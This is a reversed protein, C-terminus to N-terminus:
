QYEGAIIIILIVGVTISFVAASYFVDAIKSAARSNSRLLEATGQILCIVSCVVALIGLPLTEWLLYSFIAHLIALSMPILVPAAKRYSNPPRKM